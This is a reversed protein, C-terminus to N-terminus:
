PKEYQIERTIEGVIGASEPDIYIRRLWNNANDYETYNEVYGYETGDIYNRIQRIEDGSQNYEFLMCNWLQEKKELTDPESPRGHGGPNRRIKLHYKISFDDFILIEDTNPAALDHFFPRPINRLIGDYFLLKRQIRTNDKQEAIINILRKDSDYSYYYNEIIENRNDFLITSIPLGEDNFNFILKAHNFRDRQDFYIISATKIELRNTSYDIGTDFYRLDFLNLLLSERDKNISVNLCITKLTFRTGDGYRYDKHLVYLDNLIREHRINIRDIHGSIHGLISNKGYQIIEAPNDFFRHNPGELQPGGYLTSLNFVM